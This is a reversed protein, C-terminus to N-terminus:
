QSRDASSLSTDSQASLRDLLWAKAFEWNRGVTRPSVNLVSATEDVSLGGFFRLEVIRSKLPDIMALSHLAEDLALLDFDLQTTPLDLGEVQIQIQGGGRRASTRERIYDILLQRMAIAVCARFHTKDRFKLSSYNVLKVYAEHVLATARLTDGSKMRQVYRAAITKLETYEQSFLDGLVSLDSQTGDRIFDLVEDGPTFPTDM